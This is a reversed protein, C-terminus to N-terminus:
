GDGHQARLLDDRRRRALLRRGAAQLATASSNAVAATGYFRDLYLHTLANQTNLLLSQAYEEIFPDGCNALMVGRPLVGASRIATAEATTSCMNMCAAAAYRVVELDESYLNGLLTEFGGAQRIQQKSLEVGIPDVVTSALNGLM